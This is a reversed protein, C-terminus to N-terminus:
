PLKLKKFGLACYYKNEKVSHVFREPSVNVEMMVLRFMFAQLVKKDVMKMETDVKQGTM